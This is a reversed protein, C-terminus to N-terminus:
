ELFNWGQFFVLSLHQSERQTIALDLIIGGMCKLFVTDVGDSYMVSVISTIQSTEIELSVVLCVLEGPLRYRQSLRCVALALHSWPVVLCFLCIDTTERPLYTRLM